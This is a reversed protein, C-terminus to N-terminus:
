FVYRDSAVALADHDPTGPAGHLEDVARDVRGAVSDLKSDAVASYAHKDIKTMITSLDMPEDIVQVNTRTFERMCRRVLRM